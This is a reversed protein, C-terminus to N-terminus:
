FAREGELFNLKISGNLFQTPKLKWKGKKGQAM